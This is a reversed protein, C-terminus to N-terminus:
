LSQLIMEYQHRIMSWTFRKQFSAYGQEAIKERLDPNEILEQLANALADPSGSDVLTAGGDVFAEPIGGRKTAVVAVRSAMAEVIALPFPDDYTAPLCFIDANRFEDALAVGAYYGALSVNAPANEQLKQTYPTVPSGGFFSAGLIKAQALVRRGELIRMAEVLVHAGKVPILRSAALITPPDPKRVPIETGPYFLSPDAGNYLVTTRQLWPFRKRAEAELFQSCFVLKDMTRAVAAMTSKPSTAFQSGHLHLVLKANARRTWPALALAITPEGHVWVIDGAALKPFGKRYIARLIPGFLWSPYFRRARFRLYRALQPIEHVREPSFGWSSDAVQCVIHSKSGDDRLINATWRSLAGGSFESFQEAEPLVHYIM